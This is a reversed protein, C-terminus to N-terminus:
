RPKANAELESLRSASIGLSKSLKDLLRRERESIQGNSICDIYEAVYEKEEDTMKMTVMEKLQGARQESIGLSKRLRDLLRDERESISGDALSDKLETLYEKEAETLSDSGSNGSKEDLSAIRSEIEHFNELAAEMIEQYSSESAALDRAKDIAQTYLEFREYPIEGRELAHEVALRHFRSVDSLWYTFDKLLNYESYYNDMREIANDFEGEEALLEAEKKADIYGVESKIINFIDVKEDYMEALDSDGSVCDGMNNLYEYLRDIDILEEDGSHQMKSDGHIEFLKFWYFFDHNGDEYELYFENLYEEAKDFRRYKICNDVQEMTQGWALNYEKQKEARDLYECIEDYLSTGEPAIDKAIILNSIADDIHDSSMFTQTLGILYYFIYDYELGNTDYYSIVLNIADEYEEAKILAQHEDIFNNFGEDFKTQKKNIDKALNSFFKGINM